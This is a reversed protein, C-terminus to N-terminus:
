FLLKLAFQIQRSPRATASLTEDFASGEANALWNQQRDFIRRAPILFPKLRQVQTELRSREAPLLHNLAQFVERRWSSPFEAVLRGQQVGINDALFRISELSSLSGPDVAFEYVM